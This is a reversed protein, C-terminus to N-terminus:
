PQILNASLAQAADTSFYSLDNADGIQHKGFQTIEKLPPSISAYFKQSFALPKNAALDHIWTAIAQQYEMIFADTYPINKQFNSTGSTSEFRKIEESCLINNETSAKKIYPYLDKYHHIPVQEKFDSYSEIKDFNFEKGFLCSNNKKMYSLLKKEQGAAIDVANSEFQELSPRLVSLRQKVQTNLAAM